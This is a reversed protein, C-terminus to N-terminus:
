IWINIMTIYGNNVVIIVMKNVLIGLFFGLTLWDNWVKTKWGARLQINRWRSRPLFRITGDHGMMNWRGLIKSIMYAYWSEYRWQVLLTEEILFLLWWYVILQEISNTTASPTTAAHQQESNRQQKKCNREQDHLPTAETTTRTAAATSKTTTTMLAVPKCYNQVRYVQADPCVRQINRSVASIWRTAPLQRQPSELHEFWCVSWSQAIRASGASGMGKHFLDDYFPHRYNGVYWYMFFCFRWLLGEIMVAEVM